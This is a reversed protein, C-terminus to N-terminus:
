IARSLPKAYTNELTPKDELITINEPSRREEALKEIKQYFKKKAELCELGYSLHRRLSEIAQKFKEDKFELTEYKSCLTNTNVMCDVWNELIVNLPLRIPCDWYSQEEGDLSLVAVAITPIVDFHTDFFFAVRVKDGEKGDIQIHTDFMKLM